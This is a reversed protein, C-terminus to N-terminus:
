FRSQHTIWIVCSTSLSRFDYVPSHLEFEHMLLTFPIFIVLHNGLVDMVKNKHGTSNHEESHQNLAVVVATENTEEKREEM